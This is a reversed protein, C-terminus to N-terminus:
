RHPKAVGAAAISHRPTWAPGHKEEAGHNTGEEVIRDSFIDTRKWVEVVYHQNLDTDNIAIPLDLRALEDREEELRAGFSEVDDEEWGRFVKDKLKQIQPEDLAIHREFERVFDMPLRASWKKVKGQKLKRWYKKPMASMFNEAFGSRFGRLKAYDCKRVVLRAEAAKLQAATMDEWGEPMLSPEEEEDM